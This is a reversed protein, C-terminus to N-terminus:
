IENLVALKLSDLKNDKVLEWVNSGVVIIPHSPNGMYEMVFARFAHFAVESEGAMMDEDPTEEAYIVRRRQAETQRSYFFSRQGNEHGTGWEESEFAPEQYENRLIKMKKAVLM